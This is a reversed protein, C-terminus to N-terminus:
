HTKCLYEFANINQLKIIVILYDLLYMTDYGTSWQYPYHSASSCMVPSYIRTMIFAMNFFIEGVTVCTVSLGVSCDVVWKVSYNVFCIVTKVSHQAMLHENLNM